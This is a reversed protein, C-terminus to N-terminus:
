RRPHPRPGWKEGVNLEYEVGEPLFMKGAKAKVRDVGKRPGPEPGFPPPPEIEITDRSQGHFKCSVVLDQPKMKEDSQVDVLVHILVADHPKLSPPYVECLNLVRPPLIETKEMTEVNPLEYAALRILAKTFSILVPGPAYDARTIERNGTNVLLISISNLRSAESPGWTTRLMNLDKMWYPYSLDQFWVMAYDLTKRERARDRYSKAQLIAGAGVLLAAITVIDIWM